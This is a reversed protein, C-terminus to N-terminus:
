VHHLYSLVATVHKHLGLHGVNHRPLPWIADVCFVDASASSKQGHIFLISVSELLLKGSESEDGRQQQYRRSRKQRGASTTTFM